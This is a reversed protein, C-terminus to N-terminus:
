DGMYAKNVLSGAKAPLELKSSSFPAIKLSKNLGALPAFGRAASLKVVQAKDTPNHVELLLKDM